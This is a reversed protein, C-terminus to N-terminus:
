RTENREDLLARLGAASEDSPRPLKWFGKPLTGSGIRVLGSRALKLLHPSLVSSDPSIPVLKVIPRGHETVIVEDGAKVKSLYESLKSKLKSITTSTM